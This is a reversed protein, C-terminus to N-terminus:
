KYLFLYKKMHEVQRKLGEEYNIKPSFKLLKKAKEGSVSVKLLDHEWGLDETGLLYRKAKYWEREKGSSLNFIENEHKMKGALVLAEVVDDVYMIDLTTRDQGIEAKKGLLKALILQHYVMDQRQWPGYITPLRLINIKINKNNKERFIIAEGALKTLGYPSTPNTPTKETIVGTRDGYVDVTSTFIFKTNEQCSNILRKTMKVNNEITRQLDQWKADVATTAALHYVVDVDQLLAVLPLQNVEQDYFQFNANRGIHM